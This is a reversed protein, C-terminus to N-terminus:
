RGDFLMKVESHVQINPHLDNKNFFLSRIDKRTYHILCHSESLVGAIFPAFFM